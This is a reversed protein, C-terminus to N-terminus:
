KAKNDLLWHVALAESVFIQRSRYRNNAARIAMSIVQGALGGSVLVALKGPLEPRLRAIERARRLAYTNVVNGKLRIDLLLCWPTKGAWQSFEDALDDGWQDVTATKLDAFRYCLIRQDNLWEKTYSPTTELM